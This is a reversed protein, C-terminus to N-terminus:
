KSDVMELFLSNTIQIEKCQFDLDDVYFFPGDNLKSNSNVIMIKFFWGLKRALKPGNNKVTVIKFDNDNFKEYGAHLNELNLLPQEKSFTFYVIDQIGRVVMCKNFRVALSQSNEKKNATM